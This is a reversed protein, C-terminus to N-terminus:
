GHLAEASFSPLLSPTCEAAGPRRDADPHACAGAQLARQHDRHSKPFNREPDVDVFSRPSVVSAM